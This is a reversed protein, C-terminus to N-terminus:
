YDLIEIEWKGWPDMECDIVGELALPFGNPQEFVPIMIISRQVHPNNCGSTNNTNSINQQAPSSLKVDEFPFRLLEVKAGDDSFKNMLAVLNERDSLTDYEKDQTSDKFFLPCIRIEKCKDVLDYSELLGNTDATKYYTFIELVCRLLTEKSKPAKLEILRLIGTADDFTMLDIKGANDSQKSKLPVQYDIVEGLPNLVSQQAIALAIREEKRNSAARPTTGTHSDIKYNGRKIKTIRDFLDYNELLYESIIETYYENGDAKYTTGAHNVCTARYFSSMDKVAEKIQAITKDRTYKKSM